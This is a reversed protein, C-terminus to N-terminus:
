QLRRKNELADPPPNIWAAEPLPPPAPVGKVFREPHAKYALELVAKRAEVVDKALGRHVAEPTLM